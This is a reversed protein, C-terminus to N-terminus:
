QKGAGGSRGRWNDRKVGAAGFAVLLANFGGQRLQALGGDVVRAGDNLGGAQAGLVHHEGVQDRAVLQGDRHGGQLGAFQMRLGQRQDRRDFGAVAHLHRQEAWALLLHDVEQALMALVGHVLADVEALVAALDAISGSDRM